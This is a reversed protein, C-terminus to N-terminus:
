YWNSISYLPYFKQSTMNHHVRIAALCVSPCIPPTIFLGSSNKVLKSMYPAGSVGDRRVPLYTIKTSRMQYDPLCCISNLIFQCRPVIKPYFRNVHFSVSLNASYIVHNTQRAESQTDKFTRDRWGGFALQSKTSNWISVRTTKMAAWRPRWTCVRPCVDGDGSFTPPLPSLAPNLPLSQRPHLEGPLLRLM